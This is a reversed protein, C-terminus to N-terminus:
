AKVAEIGADALVFGALAEADDELVRAEVLLLASPFVHIEVADEIAYGALDPLLADFPQQGDKLQSIALIAQHLGEATAHFPAQLDLAAKQVRGLDEKEVLWGEAEIRL